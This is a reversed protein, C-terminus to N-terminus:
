PKVRIHDLDIVEDPNCIEHHHSIWLVTSDSDTFFDMVAKRSLADLASTPEDLFYVNRDLLVASVLAVRQKQGGSLTSIRKELLDRSLFFREFLKETKNLNKKKHLNAQYTFPLELIDRVTGSGLDPEQPLYATHKRIDWVTQHNLIRSNFRIQGTDPLIFGLLCKLLTSKGTGSRGEIVVKQGSNVTFSIDTFVTERGFKITLGKVDIVANSSM